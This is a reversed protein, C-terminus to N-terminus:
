PTVALREGKSGQELPVGEHKYKKLVFHTAISMVKNIASLKLSVFNAVEKLSRGKVRVVLDYSGSLLFLSTVEDLCSIEDAIADFGTTYEPAVKVLIVAEVIDRELADENIVAQYKVIAGVSELRALEKKVGTESMGLMTAMKAPTTRCDDTLINIIKETINSM